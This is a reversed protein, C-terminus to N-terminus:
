VTVKLSAVGNAVKINSLGVGTATGDNKRTHPHSAGTDSVKTVKQSGPFLDGTDGSSRNLELDRRGDAQVLAVRYALPNANDSQTEDIHWLALGSGPLKADRGSQQRNEVLFYEKSAKGKTWLRYCAAKDGELANLTLSRASTVNTPKIWGLTALCWASMRAPQNGSGNWSGGSMLCWDGIGHSRYSTDYLDPLGLFHGFEHSFVGLKGDEPATFYAYASVGNRVFPTPLTWKHSWIMDRRRAPNPEAEAGGGAHVLFLGDVFGDGNVDFPALSNTACYTTLAEQL